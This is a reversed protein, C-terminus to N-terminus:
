SRRMAAARRATTAIDDWAQAEVAARSAVWTAGVCAVNALALYSEALEPTIGGTPCFRVDPFPGYLASLLPRGGSAEAPFFKFRALGLDLGQMLESATAVGPLIPVGVARAAAVTAPTLGPTVIFRAGARASAELQPAALVTGAGVIAGPVKAMATMAQLAAPTRLTVEIVPLGAGVLTEALRAATSADPISLVPIVPQRSLITDLDEMIM